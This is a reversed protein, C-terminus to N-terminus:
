NQKNLKWLSKRFEDLVIKTKKETSLYIYQDLQGVSSGLVKLYVYGKEGAEGEGKSAVVAIPHKAKLKLKGKKTLGLTMNRKLHSAGWANILEFALPNTETARETHKVRWTVQRNEKLTLGRRSPITLGWTITLAFLLAPIHMLIYLDIPDFAIFLVFVTTAIAAIGSAITKLVPAIFDPGRYLSLYQDDIGEGFEGSVIHYTGNKIAIEQAITIAAFVSAFLILYNSARTM